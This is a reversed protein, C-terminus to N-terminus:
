ASYGLCHVSDTDNYYLTQANKLRCNRRNIVRYTYLNQATYHYTIQIPALSPYPRRSILLAQIHPLRNPGGRIRYTDGTLPSKSCTLLNM